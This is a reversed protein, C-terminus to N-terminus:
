KEPSQPLVDHPLSLPERPSNFLDKRQSRELEQLKRYTELAERGKEPENLRFYTQALQYNAKLHGPQQQVVSQFLPLAKAFEGASFFIYGMYYQAELHSPNLALVREFCSRARPQDGEDLYVMGTYLIADLNQPDIKLAKDLAVLADQNRAEDYYAFGLQSFALSAQPGSTASARKFSEVAEPFKGLGCLAEGLKILAFADDPHVDLYKELPLRAERYRRLESLAIGKQLFASTYSPDLQLVEDFMGLAESM